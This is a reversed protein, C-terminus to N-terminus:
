AASEQAFKGWDWFGLGWPTSQYPGVILGLEAQLVSRVRDSQWIREATATHQVYQQERAWKKSRYFAM